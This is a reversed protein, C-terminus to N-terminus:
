ATGQGSVRWYGSLRHRVEVIKGPVWWENRNALIDAPPPPLPPAPLSLPCAPCHARPCTPLVLFPHTPLHPLPTRPPPPFCPICAPPAVVTAACVRAGHGLARLVGAATATPAGLRLRQAGVELRGPSTERWCGRPWQTAPTWTLVQPRWTAPPRSFPILFAFLTDAPQGHGCGAKHKRGVCRGMGCRRHWGRGATQGGAQRDAQRGAGM